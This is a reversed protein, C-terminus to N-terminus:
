AVAVWRECLMLRRHRSEAASVAVRHRVGLGEGLREGGGGAPGGREDEEGGGGSEVHPQAHNARFSVLAVMVQVAWYAVLENRRPHSYPPLDTPSYYTLRTIM